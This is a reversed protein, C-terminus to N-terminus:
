GMRDNNTLQMLLFSADFTKLFAQGEDGIAVCQKTHIFFLLFRRYKLIAIPMISHWFPKRHQIMLLKTM